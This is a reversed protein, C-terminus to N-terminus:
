FDDVVRFLPLNFQFPPNVRRCIWGLFGDDYSEDWLMMDMDVDPWYWLPAFSRNASASKEARLSHHTTRDAVEGVETQGHYFDSKQLLPEDGVTERWFQAGMLILLSRSGRCFLGKVM